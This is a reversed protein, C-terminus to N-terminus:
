GIRYGESMYKSKEVPSLADFETRSIVKGTTNPQTGRTGGEAGGGSSKVVVCCKGFSTELAKKVASDISHGDKDAIVFSDSGTAQKSFYSCNQGLVFDAFQAACDSAINKDAIAKNFAEMCELKFQSHELAEIKKIKTELEKNLDSLKGEYVGKQEEIKTDYLTKIKDPSADSLQKELDSNKQLAANYQEEFSKRKAKEQEKENKLRESNILLGQTEENYLKLLDDAMKNSDSGSGLIQMVADKEIAM